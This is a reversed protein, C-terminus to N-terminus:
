PWPIDLFRPRVSRACRFGLGPHREDRLYAPRFCPTNVPPDGHDRGEIQTPHGGRVVRYLRYDFPSFRRARADTGPYPAPGSMTWEAVNSYLGFVPPTTNLRDYAPTGVPGMPWDQPDRDVNGWPFRRTGGRTAAFEYEAEWPLRKGLREACEVAVHWSISRVALRHDYGRPGVTFHPMVNNFAGFTVEVPDIYFPEVKRRHPWAMWGLEGTGMRFSASGSFRAMDQVVSAPPIEVPQLDITHSGRRTWRNHLHNGPKEGATPVVRYVEHFGHGPVAVELWYEGPDVNHFVLLDGRIEPHRYAKRPMPEGTEPDLPVLVGVAGAPRTAVRVTLNSSAPQATTWLGWMIAAALLGAVAAWGGRNLRRQWPPLERARQDVLRAARWANRFETTNAYRHARQPHLARQVVAALEASLGPVRERLDTVPVAQRTVEAGYPMRLALVSYMTAALGFQDSREDLDRVGEAQEPSAYGPTGCAGTAGEGEGPILLRALGFDSLWVQEEADVLVNSPKIDCHLV